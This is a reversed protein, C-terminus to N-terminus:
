SNKGHNNKNIGSQNSAFAYAIKSLSYYSLVVAIVLLIDGIASAVSVSVNAVFLGLIPTLLSGGCAVCGVGIMGAGLSGTALSINQQSGSNTDTNKQIVLLTFALSQFLAITIMSIPTLDNIYNFMDFFAGVFVDIKDWFSLADSTIIRAFQSLNFLWQLVFLTAVFLAIELVLYNSLIINRYVVHAIFKIDVRLVSVQKM